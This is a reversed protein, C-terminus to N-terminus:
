KASYAEKYEAMLKDGGAKKWQEVANNWGAEDIQGMIFKTQADTIMQDLEKGRDSYTASDLTLAPNPVIFQENEKVLRQTKRFLDPQLAPKDINYNENRNPLTDRYPKIEKLDADRDLVETHDGADKWHKGEIGKVLLTAMEPDMLKDIFDLVRKMEEETKVTSKPIALFGANGTEGPLRRGSPGEVATVDIVAEPVNKKIKDQWSQANGGAFRMGARGSEYLKDIESTDIVPFDQNILKEDYLRKILKMSQVYPETMFEPTFNGEGDVAWKNPAGQSVAIRTLTSAVEQNYKKDLLLGYTDDKGNKDPDNKVIAKIVNYYDDLSKPPQLGLADFWDKRFHLTARGLDRFLPIGYIKGNVNINEYFKQSQASLNKYDKLYPGVEWFLESKLAGITTPNYGLKILKPLEDSAIMVNVKEDYASTPIWQIELDTHTYAMIAKEVENGKSPIEGVQNVVLTLPFPKEEKPAQSEQANNTTQSTKSSEPSGDSCASLMTVALLISGTIIATRKKM